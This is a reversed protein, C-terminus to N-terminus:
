QLTALKDFLQKGILGMLEEMTLSDPVQKVTSFWINEVQGSNEATQESVLPLGVFVGQKGDDLGVTILQLELTKMDNDGIQRPYRACPLNEPLVVIVM